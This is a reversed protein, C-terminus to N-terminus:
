SATGFTSSVHDDSPFVFDLQGAAEVRQLLSRKRQQTFVARYEEDQEAVAVPGPQTTDGIFLAPAEPHRSLPMVSMNETMREAEDVVVFSPSLKPVRKYLKRLAVPTAVIVDAKALFESLLRRATQLYLRKNERFKQPNDLQSAWVEEFHYKHPNRQIESRLQRSWSCEDAAPNGEAWRAHQFQNLHQLLRKSSCPADHPIALDPPADLRAKMLSRFELGYPYVRVIRKGPMMAKLRKVADDVQANESATWVIPSSPPDNRPDRRWISDRWASKDDDTDSKSDGSEEISYESLSEDAADRYRRPAAVVAVGPGSLIAHVVMAAFQSKDSGPGGTIFIKGGRAHKFTKIADLQEGVFKGQKIFQAIGPFLKTLDQKPPTWAPDFFLLFNWWMSTPADEALNNMETIVDCEFKASTDDVDYLVRIKCADKKHRPLNNLYTDLDSPMASLPLNLQVPPHRFGFPWSSQCPADIQFLAVDALVHEPTSIRIGTCPEGREEHGNTRCVVTQKGLWAAIRERHELDDEDESKRLVRAAQYADYFRKVDDDADPFATDAEPSFTAIYRLITCTAHELYTTDFITAVCKEQAAIKDSNHSERLMTQLRKEAAYLSGYAKGEAISLGDLLQATM